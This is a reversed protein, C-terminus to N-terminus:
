LTILMLCRKEEKEQMIKTIVVRPSGLSQLQECEQQMKLERWVSSALKCKLFLHGGDEDYQNCIPCIPDIGMGRRTLNRRVPHSNHALIWV